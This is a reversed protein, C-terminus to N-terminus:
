RAWGVGNRQCGPRAKRDSKQARSLPSGGGHDYVQIDLHISDSGSSFRGLTGGLQGPGVIFVSLCGPWPVAHPARVAGAASSPGVSYHRPGPRFRRAQGWQRPPSVPRPRPLNTAPAVIHDFAGSYSLRASAWPATSDACEVLAFASPTNWGRARRRQAAPPDRRAVCNHAVAGRDLKSGALNTGARGRRRRRRRRGPRATQARAAPERRARRV